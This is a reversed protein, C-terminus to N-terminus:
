RNLNKIEGRVEAVAELVENLRNHLNRISTSFEARLGGMNLDCREVHTKEVKGIKSFLLEHEHKNDAVHKEFDSKPAPDFGFTVERKQRRNSLSNWVATLTTIVVALLSITLSTDASINM